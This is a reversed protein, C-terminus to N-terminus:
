RHISVEEEEKLLIDDDIDHFTSSEPLPRYGEMGRRITYTNDYFEEGSSSDEEEEEEVGSMMRYRDGLKALPMQWSRKMKRDTLTSTDPLLHCPSGEENSLREKDLVEPMWGNAMKEDLEEILGLFSLKTDKEACSPYGEINPLRVNPVKVCYVIV